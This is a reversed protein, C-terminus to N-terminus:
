EEEKKKMMKKQKQHKLYNIKKQQIMLKKQKIINKMQFDKLEILKKIIIKMINLNLNMM